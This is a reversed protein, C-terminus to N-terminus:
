GAQQILQALADTAETGLFDIQIPHSKEDTPMLMTALEHYSTKTLLSSRDDPHCCVTGMKRFLNVSIVGTWFDNNAASSNVGGIGDFKTLGTKYDASQVGNRISDPV